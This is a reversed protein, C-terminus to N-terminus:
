GQRMVLKLHPFALRAGHLIINVTIKYIKNKILKLIIRKKKEKSNQQSNVM